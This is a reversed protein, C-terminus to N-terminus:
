RCEVQNFAQVQEMLNNIELKTLMYAIQKRKTYPKRQQIWDVLSDCGIINFINDDCIVLDTINEHGFKNVYFRFKALETDFNMVTYVMNGEINM